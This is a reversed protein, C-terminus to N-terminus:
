AHEWMKVKRTIHDTEATLDKKALDKLNQDIDGRAISFPEGRLREWARRNAYSIAFTTCQLTNSQVHRWTTDPSIM